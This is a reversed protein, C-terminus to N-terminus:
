TPNSIFIYIWLLIYLTVVVSLHIYSTMFGVSIMMIGFISMIGLTIALARVSSYRFLGYQSVDSFLQLLFIGMIILVVIGYYGGTLANAQVPVNAIFEQATQNTLNTLGELGQSVNAFVDFNIGIESFNQAM